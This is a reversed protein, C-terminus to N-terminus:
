GICAGGGQTFRQAGQQFVRRGGARAGRGGARPHFGVKCPVGHKSCYLCDRLAGGCGGSLSGVHRSKQDHDGCVVLFFVDFPHNVPQDAVERLIIINNDVIAALVLRGRDAARATVPKNVQRDIEPQGPRELGPQAIRSFVVVVAGHLQVSVALVPGFVDLGHQFRQLLPGIDHDAAPEQRHFLGLRQPHKAAIDDAPRDPQCGAAGDTVRCAPHPHEVAGHHLFEGLVEVIARLGIGDAVEDLVARIDPFHLDLHPLARGAM